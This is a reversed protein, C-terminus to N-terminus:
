AKIRECPSSIVMPMVGAYIGRPLEFVACKKPEFRIVHLMDDGLMQAAIAVVALKEARFKIPVRNHVIEFVAEHDVSRDTGPVVAHPNSDACGTGKCVPCEFETEYTDGFRDYHVWTVKGSGGCEQCSESAAHKKLLEFLDCIRIDFKCPSAVLNETALVAKDKKLQLGEPLGPTHKPVAVFMTADCGYVFGDGGDYPKRFSARTGDPLECFMTVIEFIDNM